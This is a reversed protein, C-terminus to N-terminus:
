EGIKTNGFDTQEKEYEIVEAKLVQILEAVLDWSLDIVGVPLVKECLPHIFIDALKYALDNENVDKNAMYASLMWDRLLLERSFVAFKIEEFDPMDMVLKESKLSKLFDVRRYSDVLKAQLIIWEEKEEHTM